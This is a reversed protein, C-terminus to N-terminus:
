KKETHSSRRVRVCDATYYYEQVLEILLTSGRARKIYLRPSCCSYFTRPRAMGSQKLLYVASDFVFAGSPLTKSCRATEPQYADSKAQTVMLSIGLAFRRDELGWIERGSNDHTRYWTGPIHYACFDGNRLLAGRCRFNGLRPEQRQFLRKIVAQGRVEKGRYVWLTAEFCFNRTSRGASTEKLRYIVLMVLRM